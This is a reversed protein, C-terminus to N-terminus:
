GHVPTTRSGSTADKNCTPLQKKQEPFVTAITLVNCAFIFYGPSCEATSILYVTHGCALCVSCVAARTCRPSATSRLQWWLLPCQQVPHSQLSPKRFSSVFASSHRSVSWHGDVVEAPSRVCSLLKKRRRYQRSPEYKTNFCVTVDVILDIYQVLPSGLNETSELDCPVQRQLFHCKSPLPGISAAPFTSIHRM